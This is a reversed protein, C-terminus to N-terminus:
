QPAAPNSVADARLAFGGGAFSVGKAQLLARLLDPRDSILGDVGLALLRAMEAPDNVTWPIVRLGLAHAERITEARVDRYNPSWVRAGIAVVARPVSGQHDDIDLGGLWPSPGAKGLQVTDDSPQQDTLAVTELMPELRKVRALTRWDFSQISIRAQMGSTRVEALLADVFDDPGVTTEPELPNLKTEINLRVNTNGREKVLEFVDSLRPIREGDRGQQDAFRAAYVSGPRIRGVDYKALKAYDLSKIPIRQGTLFKGDAGRTLDHNLLRDHTVVVVGDASVACDLELTSVGLELAWAFAALTNEPMVARGGRHAQLDFGSPPHESASTSGAALVALMMVIIVKLRSRM